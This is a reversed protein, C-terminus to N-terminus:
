KYNLHEIKKLLRDILIRLSDNSIKNKYKEYLIDLTSCIENILKINEENNYNLKFLNRIYNSFNMLINLTEIYDNNSNIIYNNEYDGNLSNLIKQAASYKGINEITAVFNVNKGSTKCGFCHFSNTDYYINFSPSHDQGHEHLDAFPCNIKKTSKDIKIGYLQLVLIIPVLNAKEIYELATNEIRFKEGNEVSSKIDRNESQTNTDGNRESINPLTHM